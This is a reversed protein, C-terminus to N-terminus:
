TKYLNFYDWLIFQKKKTKQFSFVKIIKLKEFENLLSKATNFVINLKAAVSGTDIIPYSFLLILLKQGLQARRGLTRIKDEYQMRLEIVKEFTNKSKNATEIIGKLFFILWRDIDNNNRVDDLINFYDNKNKELFDSIYLIPKNLIGYYLLELTILLRGIRGNGDLFPHTTELQYHTLAVKLTKPINLKNNHWFKELDSLLIPLEECPPPIFYADAISNGGIWNQSKRIEGPQKKEGRVGQLLIKHIEKLLRISLPIRNINEIAYNM